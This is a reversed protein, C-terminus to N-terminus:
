QQEDVVVFYIQTEVKIEVDEKYFIFDKKQPDYGPHLCIYGKEGAHFAKVFPIIFGHKNGKHLAHYLFVAESLLPRRAGDIAKIWDLLDAGKFGSLNITIIGVQKLRREMFIENQSIRYGKFDSTASQDLSNNQLWLLKEHISTEPVKGDLEESISLGEVVRYMEESIDLHGPKEVNFFNVSYDSTIQSKFPKKEVTKDIM